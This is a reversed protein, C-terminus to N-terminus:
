RVSHHGKREKMKAYLAVLIDKRNKKTAITVATQGDKLFFNWIWVNFHFLFFCIM